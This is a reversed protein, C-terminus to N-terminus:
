RVRRATALFQAALAKGQDQVPTPTPSSLVSDPGLRTLKGSFPGDEIGDSLPRGVYVIEDLGSSAWPPSRLFDQLGANQQAGGAFWAFVITHSVGAGRESEAALLRAVELLAAAGIGSGGPDAISAGAPNSASDLSSSLVVARRRGVPDHGPLIGIVNIYPAVPDFSTEIRVRLAVPGEQATTYGTGVMRDWREPAVQLIGIPLRTSSRGAKPAALVLLLAYGRRAIENALSDSPSRDVVAATREGAAQPISGIGVRRFRDVEIRVQASRPDALMAAGPGWRTSDPGLRTVVTSSIHNIPGYTLDRYEGPHIPQIGFGALREAVYAASAAYGVTATGRSAIEPANLRQHHAVIRAPDLVEIAQEPELVM